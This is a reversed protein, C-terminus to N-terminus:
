LIVVDVKRVMKTELKKLDGETMNRLREPTAVTHDDVSNSRAEDVHKIDAKAFDDDTGVVHGDRNKSM